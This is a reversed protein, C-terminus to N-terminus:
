GHGREFGKMFDVLQEVGEIRMPNYLSARIGGVSAHGALAYLGAKEAEEVFDPELREDALRFSVNMRSRVAPDVHNVYFETADIAEYLMHARQEALKEFAELGGSREFWDFQLSVMLFELTHPTNLMSQRKAQEAYRWILPTSRKPSEALDKRVLVLTVGPPGLNKQASAYVLGFRSLDFRRSLINSTMDSVLPVPSDPPSPFEVGRITENDTYHLYAIEKPDLGSLDVAPIALDGPSTDLPVVAECFREGESRALRSWHGTVLYAAKTREGLLNLPIASTQGRAGGALFLVYYDNGAQLIRRAQAELKEYVEKFVKGRHSLEMVSIGIGRFDMFEEQVQRLVEDPLAAPGPGFNFVRHAM